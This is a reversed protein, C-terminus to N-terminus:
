KFIFFFSSFSLFSMKELVGRRLRRGMHVQDGYVVRMILETYQAALM